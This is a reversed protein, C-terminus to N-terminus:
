FMDIVDCGYGDWKGRNNRGVGPRREEAGGVGVRSDIRRVRDM